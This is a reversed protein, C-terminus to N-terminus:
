HCYCLYRAIFQYLRTVLFHEYLHRQMCDERRDFKKSNDECNSWRLRFTDVTQGVSQKLWKNCTVLCVQCKENCDSKHNIKYTTQDNACTFTDTELVNKCVECHKGNCKCSRVNGKQLICNLGLLIVAEISLFIFLYVSLYISVYISISPYSSISISLCIYDYMSHFHRFFIDKRFKQSIEKRYVLVM